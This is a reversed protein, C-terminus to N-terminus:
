TVKGQLLNVLALNLFEQTELSLAAGGCLAMRLRGGTGSKVASLVTSDVMSNVPGVNMKKLKLAAGFVKKTVMGGANVKGVIGKRIMEWVAPVGIMITPRFERIDGKCKRVSADTLTRVRGYGITCGVFFLTLDVIFALIHSLPLFSLYFDEPFVHSGINHLTISGCASILNLHTL